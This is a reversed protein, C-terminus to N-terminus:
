PAGYIGGTYVPTTYRYTVTAEVKNAQDDEIIRRQEPEIGGAVALRTLETNAATLAEEKSEAEVSITIRVTQDRRGLIQYSSGPEYPMYHWATRQGDGSIEVRSTIRIVGDDPVNDNYYFELTFPIEKDPYDDNTRLQGVHVTQSMPGYVLQGNDTALATQLLDLETFNATLSGKAIVGSLTISVKQSKLAQQESDRVSDVTRSILPMRDFTYDRYSCVTTINDSGADPDPYTLRVAYDQCFDNEPEPADIEDVVVNGSAQQVIYGTGDHYALAQRDTDFADRLAEMAQQTAGFDVGGVFGKATVIQYPIRPGRPGQRRYERRIGVLPMPTLSTAGYTFYPDAM